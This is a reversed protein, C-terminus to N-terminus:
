FDPPPIRNIEPLYIVRDAIRQALAMNHTVAIMGMGRERLIGLLLQWIQAQTIVDLMTSIEDALLFETRPGLVRAICFRQQEGGSLEAPWRSLWEQRIGIGELFAADPRWGENLTRAMKWRPNVAKEPHQCIMQIPCYGRQPLPKDRWLVVGKDPQELGAIIKTLTSKGYGSPGVLAVREGAAVSFSIDKLVPTKKNYAFSVNKVELAM